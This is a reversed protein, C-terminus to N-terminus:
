EGDKIRAGDTNINKTKTFGNNKLPVSRSLVEMIGGTGKSALVSLEDLQRLISAAADRIAIQEPSHGSESVAKDYLFEKINPSSNWEDVVKRYTDIEAQINQVVRSLLKEKTLTPHKRELQQLQTGYVSVWRAYAKINFLTDARSSTM